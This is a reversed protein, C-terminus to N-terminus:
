QTFEFQSVVLHCPIHGNAIHPGVEDVFQFIEEWADAKLLWFEVKQGLFIAFQWIHHVESDM